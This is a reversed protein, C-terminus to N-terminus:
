KSKSAVCTTNCGVVACISRAPTECWEVGMGDHGSRAVSAAIKVVHTASDNGLVMLMVRANVPLELATKIFAGSSSIDRVRGTATIGADAFLRVRAECPVRQGWRHEMFTRRSSGAAETSASQEIMVM